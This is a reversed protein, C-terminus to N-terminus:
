PVAAVLKRLVLNTEGGGNRTVSLVEFSGEAPAGGDAPITVQDLQQPLIPFESELIDINIRQSVLLSGDELMDEQLDCHWIARASSSGASPNSVIPSFTIPRAWQTFNPSYILLSFDM